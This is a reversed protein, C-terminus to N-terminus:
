NSMANTVQETSLQEVPMFQFGLLLVDDIQPENGKWTLFQSLLEEEQQSMELSINNVLVNRLKSTM